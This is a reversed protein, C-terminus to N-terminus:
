LDALLASSSCSVLLCFVVFGFFYCNFFFGFVFGFVGFWWKKSHLQMKLQGYIYKMISLIEPRM